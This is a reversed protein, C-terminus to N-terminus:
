FPYSKVSAVTAQPLPQNPAAINSQVTATVSIQLLTTPAASACPATMATGALSSVQWQRRFYWNAPPAAGGGLLNGNVDLYDVYGNVAAAPPISGGITLGTGGANVTPFQTTDSTADCFKLNLLQEMKDQAYETARASLHGQNETTPIAVTTAALIGAAAILLVVLAIMTEILTLGSQLQKTRVLRKAKIKM